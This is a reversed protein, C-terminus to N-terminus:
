SLLLDRIENLSPREFERRTFTRVIVSDLNPETSPRVYDLNRVSRLLRDNEDGKFPFELYLMYYLIVVVAWVDTGFSYDRGFIAEYSMYRLTGSRNRIRERSNKLQVSLGFDGIKLQTYNNVFVNALKIDRHVINNEHIYSLGDVIQLIFGKIADFSNMPEACIEKLTRTNCYELIFYVTTDQRFFGYSRVVNVHDLDRHVAIENLVADDSKSVDLTKIAYIKTRMTARFVRGFVGHGLEENLTYIDDGSIIEM